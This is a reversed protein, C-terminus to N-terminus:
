PSGVSAEVVGLTQGTSTVVECTWEGAAPASRVSWTRWAGKRQGDVPPLEVRTERAPTAEGSPTHRWVHTFRERLWVTSLRLADVPAEGAIADISAQTPDFIPTKM